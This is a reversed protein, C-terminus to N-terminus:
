LLVNSCRQYLTSKNAPFHLTLLCGYTSAASLLSAPHVNDIKKKQHSPASLNLNKEGSWGTM